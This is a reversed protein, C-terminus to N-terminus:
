KVTVPTTDIYLENADSIMYFTQDDTAIMVETDYGIESIGDSLSFEGGEDNLAKMKVIIVTNDEESPVFGNQPLDLVIIKAGNELFTGNDTSLQPSYKEGNNRCEYGAYVFNNTDYCMTLTTSCLKANENNKIIDSVNVKIEVIDGEKVDEADTSISIKPLEAKYAEAIMFDEASYDIEKKALARKAQRTTIHTTFTAEDFYVTAGLAEAIVRIPLMTRENVIVPAVDSTIETKDANLVSTYEYRSLVPNDITMKVVIVNDFSNVTVTKTADDWKVTSDMTELVRRVPVYLRDNMIVPPQEERFTIARGDVKIKPKNAEAFASTAMSASVLLAMILSLVKKM